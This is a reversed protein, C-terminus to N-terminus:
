SLSTPMNFDDLVVNAPETFRKNLPENDIITMFVDEMMM